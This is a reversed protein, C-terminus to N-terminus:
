ERKRAYKSPSFVSGILGHATSLLNLPSKGNTILTSRLGLANLMNVKYNSQATAMKLLLDPGITSVLASFRQVEVEM